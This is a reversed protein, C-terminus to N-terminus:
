KLGSIVYLSSRVRAYDYVMSGSPTVILNILGSVAATTPQLTAFLERRGTAVDLKEIRVPVPYRRYVLVSRGDTAWGAIQEEPVAGPVAACVGVGTDPTTCLQVGGDEKFVFVRDRAPSFLLRPGILHVGTPLYPVFSGGAAPGAFVAWRAGPRRLELMLRGDKLWGGVAVDEIPGVDLQRALGSVPVLSIQVPTGHSRVLAASGDPALAIPFGDSIRLPERDSARRVYVSAKLGGSDGEEGFLVVGNNSVDRLSGGEKWSLDRAPTTASDRLEMRGAVEDFSALLRGEASIDHVTVTGPVRFVMREHGELDMALVTCQRGSSRAVAFWVEKGSPAWALGWWDYFTSSQAILKGAPDMIRLSCSSSSCRFMAVHDGSPSIRPNALGVSNQRGVQTDLIPKGQPWELIPVEANPLQRSVALSGDLSFDAFTVRDLEKRPAGGTLSARAITGRRSYPNGGPVIADVLIALAGDPSVSLLDANEYGLARAGPSDLSTVFIDKKQNEWDASYVITRGDRAFRGAFVFGEDFTVRQYAVESIGAGTPTARGVHLYGTAWAAAGAIAMLALAALAIVATLNLLGARSPANTPGSMGTTSSTGSITTTGSLAELAFAVDKASQFREAPNKELCHRIIRDLAPAQAVQQVALDAPDERLIATMTEAATERQFARQGTVMEYLVAGLAFLDTRADLMHGRVQEPAMYGVTGLVTGPDTMAARTATAGSGDAADAAKALGFDLIKVQGDSVLFINDPKLDRHILGKAHAAALGKAIQVTTEIARRVPLPGHTLRDRLSEGDLLEMVAFTVGDETGADHLALINPHSLAAVAKAERDFRALREPDRAVSQPLIKIAVERDLRTDRARYVEGMGGAGLPKIIEYRGLRSGATLSM